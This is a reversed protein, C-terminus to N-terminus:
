CSQLSASPKPVPLDLGALASDTREFLTPLDSDNVIVADALAADIDQSAMRRRMESEPRSSWELRKEEPAVVMVVADFLGSFLSKSLAIASEMVAFPTQQPLADKWRIFDELVLPHVIAETKALAAADSFIAKALLSSSFVGTCPDRLPVGIAEELKETLPGDYLSRTRSDSDYVPVGRSALWAAVVSKGSGIGGTLLVTKM